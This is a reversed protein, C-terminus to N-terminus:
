FKFPLGSRETYNRLHKELEATIEDIEQNSEANNIAVKALTLANDLQDSADDLQQKSIIDNVWASALNSKARYIMRTLACSVVFKIDSLSMAKM